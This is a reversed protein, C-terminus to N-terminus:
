NRRIGVGMWTHIGGPRSKKFGRAGMETGFAKQTQHYEGTEDCWRQYVKYLEGAKASLTRDVICCTEIFQGMVDQESRYEETAAKIAEPANDLGIQKYWHWGM